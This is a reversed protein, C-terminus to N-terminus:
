VDSTGPIDRKRPDGVYPRKPGFDQPNNPKDDLDNLEVPEYRGPPHWIPPPPGFPMNNAPMPPPLIPGAPHYVTRSRRNRCCVCYLCIAGLCFLFFLVGVVPGVILYPFPSPESDYGDDYQRKKLPMLDVAPKLKSDCHRHGCRAMEQMESLLSVM